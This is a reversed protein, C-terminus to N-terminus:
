RIVRSWIGSSLLGSGCWQPFSVRVTTFTQQLRYSLWRSFTSLFFHVTM